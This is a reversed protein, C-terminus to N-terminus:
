IDEDDSPPSPDLRAVDKAWQLKEVQAEEDDESEEENFQANSNSSTVITLYVSSSSSSSSKAKLAEFRASIDNEDM